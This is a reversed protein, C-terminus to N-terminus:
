QGETSTVRRAAAESRAFDIPKVLHEIFGAERSERVDQDQGYGSLAIGRLGYQDRLQRMLELGNGDPLGLDSVVLDFRQAKAATRASAVDAAPTVEYG